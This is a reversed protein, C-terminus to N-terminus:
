ARRWHQTLSFIHHNEEGDLTWHKVGSGHKDLAQLAPCVTLHFTPARLTVVSWQGGALRGVGGVRGAAALTYSWWWKSHVPANRKSKNCQVYTSRVDASVNVNSNIPSEVYYIPLSLYLIQV